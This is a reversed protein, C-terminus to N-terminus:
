CDQKRTSSTCAATPGQVQLPLWVPMEEADVALPLVVLLELLYGAMWPLLIGLTGIVYVVRGTQGVARSHQSGPTAGDGPDIPCRVGVALARLQQWSWSVHQAALVLMRALAVAAGLVTLGLGLSYLEHVRRGGIAAALV